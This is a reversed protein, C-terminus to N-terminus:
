DAAAALTLPLTILSAGSRALEAADALASAASYAPTAPEVRSQARHMRQATLFTSLELESYGSRAFFLAWRQWTPGPAVMTATDHEDMM